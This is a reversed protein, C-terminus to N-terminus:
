ALINLKYPLIPTHDKDQLIGNNEYSKRLSSESQPKGRNGSGTQNGQGDSSAMNAEMHHLKIGQQDLNDKINQMNSNLLNVADSNQAIINISLLGDNSQLVLKIRGLSDPKLNIELSPAKGQIQQVINTVISDIQSQSLSNV